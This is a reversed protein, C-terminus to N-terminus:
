GADKKSVRNDILRFLDLGVGIQGGSYTRGEPAQLRTFFRPMICIVEEVFCLGLAGGVRFHGFTDEGLFAQVGFEAGPHLSVAGDQFRVGAELSLGGAHVMRYVSSINSLEGEKLDIRTLHQLSYFGGALLAVRDKAGVLQRLGAGIRLAPGLIESRTSEKELMDGIERAYSYNLTGWGVGFEARLFIRGFAKARYGTAPPPPAPLAPCTMRAPDVQSAPLAARLADAHQQLEAYKPDGEPLKEQERLSREFAAVLALAAELHRAGARGPHCTYAAQYATIASILVDGLQAIRGAREEASETGSAKPHLELVLAGFLAASQEHTVEAALNQAPPLTDPTIAECAPAVERM